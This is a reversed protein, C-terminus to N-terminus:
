KKGKRKDAVANRFIKLTEVATRDWTFEAARSIGAKVAKDRYENDTLVRAMAECLAQVDKPPIPEAAKGALEKQVGGDCCVVPTGCRMAELIPFSFGEYSSPCVLMAAEHYASILDRETTAAAFTVYDSLGLDHVLNRTHMSSTDEPGILLLHINENLKRRLEAVARILIPINKHPRQNGVYLIVKAKTNTPTPNDPPVFAESVGCYVLQIRKATKDQLSLSKIIDSRLTRSVAILATCNTTANSLCFRKAIAKFTNRTDRSPNNHIAVITAKSIGKFGGFALFSNAVIPSFYIDCKLGILFKALNFKGIFSAFTYPLVAPIVNNRGGHLADALIDDQTEKDHFLVYWTWEPALVPLRRLLERVYVSTGTSTKSICRADFVVNM